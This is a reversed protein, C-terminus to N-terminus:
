NVSAGSITFVVGIGSQVFIWQRRYWLRLKALLVQPSLPPCFRDHSNPVSTGRNQSSLHRQKPFQHAETKPVSTGRNQSCLHRQKPFLPAETKPVSTGRNQSSLHRQKAAGLNYTKRKQKQIQLVWNSTRFINRSDNADTAVCM